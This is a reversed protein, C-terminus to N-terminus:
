LVSRNDLIEEPLVGSGYALVSSQGDFSVPEGDMNVFTGGAEEVIVAGAAFDYLGLKMEFFLTLKGAAVQCLDWAASGSRRLDVCRELYGACLKWTKEHLEEYYPSTGFGVLGDRLHKDSVRIPRDNLFAGQGREARFLEDNFPNYVIGLYPKGDLFLGCSIVSPFYGNIFNSTGDIPDIVFLWGRRYEERFVDHGEEEGFFAAEPMIRHLKDFLYEQVRRDYVTVYNAQGEKALFVERTRAAETIIRSADRVTREIAERITIELM